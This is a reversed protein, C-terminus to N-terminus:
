PRNFERTIFFYEEVKPTQIGPGERFSPAQLRTDKGKAKKNEKHPGADRQNLTGM